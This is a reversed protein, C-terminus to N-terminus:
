ATFEDGYVVAEARKSFFELTKSYDHLTELWQAEERTLERGACAWKSHLDGVTAAYNRSLIAFFRATELVKLSNYEAM